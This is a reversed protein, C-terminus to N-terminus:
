KKEGATANAGAEGSKEILASSLRLYGYWKWNMARLLVDLPRLLCPWSSLKMLLASYASYATRELASRFPRTELRYLRVIDGAGPAPLDAGQLANAIDDFSTAACTGAPLDEVSAHVLGIRVIRAGLIQRALDEATRKVTPYTYCRTHDVVNATATSVYVFSGKCAQSLREFLHRNEADDRSFSFIWVTDDPRFEFDGIDAHGIATVCAMKRPALAKWISSNRGIVVSRAPAAAPTESM